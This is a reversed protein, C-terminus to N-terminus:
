PRPTTPLVRAMPPPPQMTVLPRPAHTGPAAEHGAAPAQHAAPAEHKEAAPASHADHAQAGLALPSLSLLAALSIRTLKNTM